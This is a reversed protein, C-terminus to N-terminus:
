VHPSSQQMLRFQPYFAAFAQQMDHDDEIPAMLARSTAASTGPLSHRRCRVILMEYGNGWCNPCHGRPCDGRTGKDFRLGSPLSPRALPAMITADAALGLANRPLGSVRLPAVATPTHHELAYEEFYQQVAAATTSSAAHSDYVHFLPDRFKDKDVANLYAMLKSQDLRMMGPNDPDELRYAVQSALENLKAAFAAHSQDGQRMALLSALRAM